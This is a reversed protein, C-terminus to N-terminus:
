KDEQYIEDMLYAIQDISLDNLRLLTISSQEFSDCTPIVSLVEENICILYASIDEGDFSRTYSVIEFENEIGQENIDKLREDTTHEDSFKYTFDKKTGKIIENTTMLKKISNVMNTFNTM